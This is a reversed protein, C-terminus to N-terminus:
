FIQRANITINCTFDAQLSPTFATNFEKFIFNTNAEAIFPLRNFELKQTTSVFCSNPEVVPVLGAQSNTPFTQGILINDVTKYSLTMFPNQLFILSTGGKWRMVSTMIIEDVVIRVNVPIFDPSPFFGNNSVFDYRLIFPEFAIISKPISRIDPLYKDLTEALNYM